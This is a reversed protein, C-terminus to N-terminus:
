VEPDKLNRKQLNRYKNALDVNTRGKQFPYSWLISNWHYGMKLVGDLLYGVEKETFDKRQRRKSSQRVGMTYECIDSHKDDDFTYIHDQFRRKNDFLPTFLNRRDQPQYKQNKLHFDKTPTKALNMSDTQKIHFDTICSTTRRIPTLFFNRDTKNINSALLKKLEKKYKDECEQIVKHRDCKNPCAQLIKSFNRSNLSAAVTSCGSCRFDQGVNLSPVSCTLNGSIEKDILDSCLFLPDMNKQKRRCLAPIKFLEHDDCDTVHRQEFDQKDKSEQKEKSADTRPVIPEPVSMTQNTAKRCTMLLSKPSHQQNTEPFGNRNYADSIDQPGKNRATDNSMNHKQSDLNRAKINVNIQDAKINGFQSAKINEGIEEQSVDDEVFIQRRVKEMLQQDRYQNKNEEAGSCSLSFTPIITDEERYGTVGQGFDLKRKAPTFDQKKECRKIKTSDMRPKDVSQQERCHKMSVGEEDKAMQNMGRLLSDHLQFKPYAHSTPPAAARRVDVDGTNNTLEQQKELTEIRHLFEEAFKWYNRLSIDKPNSTVTDEKFQCNEVLNNSLKETILQCSQLVFTAAKRPEEDQSEAVIQIMLPLGNSKLLQYQHVECGDTCHGIALIIGLKSGPDLDNKILLAVLKPVISYQSLRLALSSNDSICSDLTKIVSIALQVNSHYTLSEDALNVATQALTDLGGVKCFYNQVYSNNAVTLGIFACIPRIIEQRICKLLCEKAFPFAATCLRQNEEAVTFYTDTCTVNNFCTLKVINPNRKFGNEGKGQPHQCMCYYPKAQM